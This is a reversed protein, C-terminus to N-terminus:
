WTGENDQISKQDDLTLQIETLSKNSEVVTFNRSQLTNRVYEYGPMRDRSVTIVDGIESDFFRYKAKIDLKASRDGLIYALRRALKQAESAVILWTDFSKQKKVGHLNETLSNTNSEVLPLGMGAEPGLERQRYNVLVTSILDSYNFDYRYSNVLIEDDAITKAVAGQPEVNRITWKLDSDIYLRVLASQCIGTILTKTTPFGAFSTEPIAFGLEFESPELLDFQTGDLEAEPILAVDKLMSWLIVTSDTLTRTRISDGGFPNGGMTTTNKHGYVRAFIQDNPSLNEAFGFTAEVTTDLTFGAVHNTADTYEIYDRGYFLNYAVGDKVITVNGVFSREIVDANTAAPAATTHDIYGGGANVALVYFYTNSTKNWVSDGIQFGQTSSVYTRTTTHIGGTASRVLTGLNTEDNILSYTRNDSTTPSDIVYTINVAPFGDVVGFVQRICRGIYNPDINPFESTSYFSSGTAHRWENDFFKTADLLAFNVQQNTVVYKNCYGKLVLKINDNQLEGLWHYLKFDARSFSSDYLHKALYNTTNSISVQATFTPQFGFVVDSTSSIISPTGTLLPEFYVVETSSNTPERNIHADFTGFYLEYTPIIQFGSPDAAVNVYLRLTDYDFYWENLAVTPSAAETLEDGDALCHTVYGYEFSTYYINASVNVWATDVVRRPSMVLLYQSNISEESTLSAYAM